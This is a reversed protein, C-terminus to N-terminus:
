PFKVRHLIMLLGVLLIIHYVIVEQKNYVLRQLRHRILYVEKYEKTNKFDDESEM